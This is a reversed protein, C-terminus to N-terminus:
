GELREIFKQVEKEIIKEIDKIKIDLSVDWKNEIKKLKYMTSITLEGNQHNINFIMLLTIGKVESIQGFLEGGFYFINNNYKSNTEILDCMIYPILKPNLGKERIMGFQNVNFPKITFKREDRIVAYYHKLVNSVRADVDNMYKIDDISDELYRDINYVEAISLNDIFGNNDVLEDVMKKPLDCQEIMKYSNNDHHLMAVDVIGFKKDIIEVKIFEFNNVTKKYYKFKIDTFKTM